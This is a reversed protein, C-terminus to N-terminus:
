SATEAVAPQPEPQANVITGKPRPNQRSSSGGLHNLLLGRTTEFEKGIMGLRLLFVRTDYRATAENFTRKRAIAHKGVYAKATLALCLQVYAKVKDARLTGDFYRFEATGHCQVAHLNLGRYRSDHRHEYRAVRAEDASGYWAALLAERTKPRKAVLRAIFEPSAEGCFRQARATSVQLARYLLPEQQYCLAALRGLAAGDLDPTGTGADTVGVHVHLGCSANVRGGADTIARTVEQLMEMDAWGLKPSVVEATYVHGTLSGDGEIRWPRGDAMVVTWRSTYRDEVKRGGVVALIADALVRRNAGITELEVGFPFKKMEEILLRFANAM